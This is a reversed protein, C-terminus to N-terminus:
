LWTLTYSTEDVSPGLPWHKSCVDDPDGAARIYRFESDIAFCRLEFHKMCVDDTDGAGSLVITGRDIAFCRLDFATTKFSKWSPSLFM